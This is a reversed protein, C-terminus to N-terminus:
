YFFKDHVFRQYNQKIQEYVKSYKYKKYITKDKKSRGMLLLHDDRIIGTVSWQGV